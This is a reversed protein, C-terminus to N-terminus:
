LGDPMQWDSPGKPYFGKRTLIEITPAAQSPLYYGDWSISQRWVEEHVDVYYVGHSVSHVYEVLPGLAKLSRYYSPAPTTLNM